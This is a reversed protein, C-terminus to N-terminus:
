LLRGKPLFKDFHPQLWIGIAKSDYKMCRQVNIKIEELEQISGRFSSPNDLFDLAQDRTLAIGPGTFCIVEVVFQQIEHRNALKDTDWTSDLFKELLPITQKGWLTHELRRETTKTAMRCAMAFEKVVDLHLNRSILTQVADITRMLLNQFRIYLNIHNKAVIDKIWEEFFDGVTNRSLAMLFGGSLIVEWLYRGIEESSITCGCRPCYFHGLDPSAISCSIQCDMVEDFAGEGKPAAWSKFHEDIGYRECTACEFPKCDHIQQNCVQCTCDSGSFIHGESRQAECKTCKCNEWQHEGAGCNRCKCGQWIHDRDRTKQCINCLCGKWKHIGLKCFIEM